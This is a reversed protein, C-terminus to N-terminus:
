SIEGRVMRISITNVLDAMNAHSVSNLINPAAIIIVKQILPDVISFHTM